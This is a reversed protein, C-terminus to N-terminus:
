ERFQCKCSKFGALARDYIVLICWGRHLAFGSNYHTGLDISPMGIKSGKIPCVLKLTQCWEGNGRRGPPWEIKTYCIDGFSYVQENTEGSHYGWYYVTHNPCFTFVNDTSVPRSNSSKSAYMNDISWHSKYFAWEKLCTEYLIALDYTPCAWRGTRTCVFGAKLICWMISQCASGTSLDLFQLCSVFTNAKYQHM